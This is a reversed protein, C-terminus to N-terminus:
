FGGDAFLYPASMLDPIRQLVREDASNMNKAVKVEVTARGTLILLSVFLGASGFASGRAQM